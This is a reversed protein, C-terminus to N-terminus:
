NSRSSAAASKSPRTRRAARRRAIAAFQRGLPRRGFAYAGRGQGRRLFRRADRPRAAARGLRSARDVVATGRRRGRRGPRRDGRVHGAARREEARAPGDARDGQAVHGRGGGATRRGARRVRGPGLPVPQRVGARAGQPTRRRPERHGLAHGDRRVAGHPDRSPLDARRLPGRRAHGPQRADRAHAEAKEGGGPGIHAFLQLETVALRPTPSARRRAHRRCSRGVQRGARRARGHLRPLRGAARDAPSVSGGILPHDTITALSPGVGRILTRNWDRGWM